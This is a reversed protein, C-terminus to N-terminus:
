KAVEAKELWLALADGTKQYRVVRGHRRFWQGISGCAVKQRQKVSFPVSLAMGDPLALLADIIPKNAGNPERQRIPIPITTFETM